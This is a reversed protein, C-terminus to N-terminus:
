YGGHSAGKQLRLKRIILGAKGKSWKPLTVGNYDRGYGNFAVYPVGLRVLEKAQADTLTEVQLKIVVPKVDLEPFLSLTLKDKM